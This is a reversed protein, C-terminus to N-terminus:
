LLVLSYEQELVLMLILIRSIPLQALFLSQPLKIQLILDLYKQQEVLPVLPDLDLIHQLFLPNQLLELFKFILAQQHVPFLYKQQEVLLALPDLDLMLTLIRSIQQQVLFLLLFLKIQHIQDLYKQREVLLVLPDLDLTHQLFLPNQLLGLSRLQALDKIRQREVFKLQLTEVLLFLALVLMLILIRSIPLQALFLSQPLKIQLILDLYKLEVVLQLYLELDLIANHFLLMDLSISQEQDMMSLDRNRVLMELSEFRAM